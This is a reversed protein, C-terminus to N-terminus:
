KMENSKIHSHKAHMGETRENWRKLSVCSHVLHILQAAEINNNNNNTKKQTNTTIEKPAGKEMGTMDTFLAFELM